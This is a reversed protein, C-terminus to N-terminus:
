YPGNWPNAPEDQNEEVVPARSVLADGMQEFHEDLPEPIGVEVRLNTDGPEFGILLNPPYISVYLCQFLYYYIM